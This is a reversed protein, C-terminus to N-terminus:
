ALERFVAQIREFAWDLEERRIVLAPAFRITHVHTEKCLLGKEGLAECFRRAGGASAHLELGIWLGKGRIERIHKSEITRLKELFYAGLTASNEILGEDVLVKLAERAVACALPNGGFTSGHDGPHFVQM